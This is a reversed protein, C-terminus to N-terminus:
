RAYETYRVIIRPRLSMNPANTGYFAVRDIENGAYPAELQMGWNQRPKLKWERVALTVDLKVSDTAADIAAATNTVGAVAASDHREFSLSDTYRYPLISPTVPLNSFLARDRYLTLTALNVVIHLSDSLEAFPMLNFRLGSRWVSGRGIIVAGEVPQYTDKVIFMDDSPLFRLTDKHQPLHVSDRVTCFVWLYPKLSDVANASYFRALRDNQLGRLNLTIASDCRTSDSRALWVRASDVSLNIKARAKEVPTPYELFETRYGSPISDLDPPAAETWTFDLIRAEVDPYAGIVAEAWFVTFYASDVQWEYPMTTLPKYRLLSEASVAESAHGDGGIYLYASSGASIKDLRFNCVADIDLTLIATRGTIPTGINGGVPGSPESCSVCLLGV